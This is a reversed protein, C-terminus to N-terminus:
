FEASDSSTVYGEMQSCHVKVIEDRTMEDRSM